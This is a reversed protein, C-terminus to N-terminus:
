IKEGPKGLPLKVSFTTGKNLESQVTIHGKNMEVFDRTIMLGYGSGPEDETGPTSDLRSVSFLKAVNEPAIGIGNDKVRITLYQTEEVADIIIEGKHSTYKIANSLLNRLITDLMNTDAFVMLGDDVLSRIKIEKNKYQQYFLQVISDVAKQVNVNDPTYSIKGTQMRIWGLLNDLLNHSSRAADVMNTILERKMADDYEDFNSILLEGLGMINFFPTKLDHSIISLLTDKTKNLEILEKEHARLQLHIKVRSALESPNFPKTVYDVGGVEFGKAVSIDDTKATLFIVPLSEHEPNQKIKSCVEIGDMGPMMIDLLILDFEHEELQKLANEGSQSFYLSYGANKLIKAVLQINKPVDDVILISYNENVKKEM